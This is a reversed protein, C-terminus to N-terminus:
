RLGKFFEWIVIGGCVSVNLSHKTGLQPIELCCDSVSIAEDSVGDVENGLVVAYKKTKDIGFEDIMTSINTQEIALIEFGEAKM